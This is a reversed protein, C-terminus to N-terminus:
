WGYRQPERVVRGSRTTTLQDSSENQPELVPTLVEGEAIACEDLLTDSNAAPETEVNAIDLDPAESAMNQAPAIIQIEKLNNLDYENKSKILDEEFLLDSANFGTNM